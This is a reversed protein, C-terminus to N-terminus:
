NIELINWNEMFESTGKTKSDEEEDEDEEEMELPNKEFFKKMSKSKRDENFNWIDVTLLYGNSIKEITKTIDETDTRKSLIVKESDEGTEKSITMKSKKNEM